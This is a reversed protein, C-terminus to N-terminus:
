YLIDKYSYNYDLSSLILSNPNIDIILIENAVFISHKYVRIFSSVKFMIKLPNLSGEGLIIFWLILAQM